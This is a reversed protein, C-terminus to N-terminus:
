NETSYLKRKDKLPEDLYKYYIHIERPKDESYADITIHSILEIVIERTLEQVESYKKIRSIFEDINDENLKIDSIKKELESIDGEIKQQEAEYKNMLNICVKESMKGSVKDEYVSQMLNDLEELRRKNERLKKNDSSIQKSSKKGKQSLYVRRAKEEDAATYAAKERIDALVIESIDKEWIYHSTCSCKGFMAYSICNYFIRREKVGNKIFSKGASKMKHGCDVCYMMGSLPHITGEKTRKGRSAAEDVERCKDWLEQSIIPEHNNKVIVWESEDKDVRKHNKYSVCTTKQQALHGLYIPNKLITRITDQCWLHRTFFPNTKGILEYKRDMPIQVHDANLIDAIHRVTIGQSRLTFIRRVVEAAEPDIVPTHKEDDSKIYGYAAFTSKYKGAKANAAMVARIKKSTSSCHWENFLNVIPMMDMAASDKNATDVNDNLAIFRINYAPFIYDVYQGVEIYNRGFRSLDKVIILNISGAKADDLLRQVGPRNFDTGSFGDDIYIDFLNWGQEAVYKTLILKQNEISLSEGAREDEQSLRVYIGANYITQKPM